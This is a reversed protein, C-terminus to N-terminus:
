THSIMELLKWMALINLKYFISSKKVTLPSSFSKSYKSNSYSMINLLSEM